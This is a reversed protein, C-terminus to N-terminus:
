WLIIFIMEQLSLSPCNILITDVIYHIDGPIFFNNNLPHLGSIKLLFHLSVNVFLYFLYMLSLVTFIVFLFSSAMDFHLSLFPCNRLITGMVYHIDGPIFFINLPHLYVVVDLRYLSVDEISSSM